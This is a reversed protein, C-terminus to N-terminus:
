SSIAHDLLETDTPTDWGAGFFEEAIFRLFMSRTMASALGRKHFTNAVTPKDSLSAEFRALVGSRDGEGMENFLGEAERRRLDRYGELLEVKRSKSEAKDIVPSM